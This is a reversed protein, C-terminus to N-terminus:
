LVVGGLSRFVAAFHGAVGPHGYSNPPLYAIYNGHTPSKAGSFALRHRPICLPFDLPSVDCRQLTQLQELSYGVWIAQEVHGAKYHRILKEWFARVVGRGGPPNLFVRGSWPKSLGDDAATYYQEAQILENAKECSAPDLTIGGLVQRAAMVVDSPTYWEVSAASHLPNAM